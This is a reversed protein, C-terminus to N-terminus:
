KKFTAYGQLLTVSVRSFVGGTGAVGYGPNMRVFSSQSIWDFLSCDAFRKLHQKSYAGHRVGCRVM